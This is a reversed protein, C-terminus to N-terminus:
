NRYKPRQPRRKRDQQLPCSPKGRKLRLPLSLRVNRTKYTLHPRKHSQCPPDRARAARQDHKIDLHLTSPHRANITPSLPRRDLRITQAAQCDPRNSQLRVSHWDEAM